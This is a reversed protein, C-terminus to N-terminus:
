VWLILTVEHKQMQDFWGIGARAHPYPQRTVHIHFEIPRVTSRRLRIRVPCLSGRIGAGSVFLVARFHIHKCSKPFVLLKIESKRENASSTPKLFVWLLLRLGNIMYIVSIISIRFKVNNSSRLSSISASLLRGSQFSEMNYKGNYFRRREIYKLEWSIRWCLSLVRDKGRIKKVDNKLWCWDM